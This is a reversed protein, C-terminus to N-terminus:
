RLVADLESLKDTAEAVTIDGRELARLVDLRPDDGATAARDDSGETAGTTVTAVTADTEDGTSTATEALAVAPGADRPEVVHLDGSVSRFTLTPGPRGVILIKRGPMSDRKSPLDSSLDGTISEAEVRFGARGVITADGSISRMAFPGDGRLEADLRVDGSTTGIDLRRVSPLRIELDGSVTKASLDLPAAGDIEVEGSVTEVQLVGALRALSVEGSATRIRKEGSLDSASIDASAADISVSAGHPVEVRLDMSSNRFMRLGLDLGDRQRLEVHGDGLEIDFVDSLSKDDLSTVRVTDGEVGRVTIEGAAQRLSFRGRPGIAHELTTGATTSKSM